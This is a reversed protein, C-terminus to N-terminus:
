KQCQRIVVIKGIKVVEEFQKSETLEDILRRPGLKPDAADDFAITANAQLHPLWCRFDRKVGEYSHDGDIWLLSIPESWSPPLM